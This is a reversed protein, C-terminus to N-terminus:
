FNVNVNSESNQQQLKRDNIWVYQLDLQFSVNFYIQFRKWKRHSLFKKWFCFLLNHQTPKLKLVLSVEPTRGSHKYILTDRQMHGVSVGKALSSSDNQKNKRFCSLLMIETVRIFVEPLLGFYRLYNNWSIVAQYNQLCVLLLECTIYYHTTKKVLLELCMESNLKPGASLGDVRGSGILIGWRRINIKPATDSPGTIYLYPAEFLLPTRVKQRIRSKSTIPELKRNLIINAICKKYTANNM